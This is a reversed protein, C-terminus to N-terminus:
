ALGIARGSRRRRQTAEASQPPVPLHPLFSSSCRVLPRLPFILQFSSRAVLVTRTGLRREKWDEPVLSESSNFQELVALFTEPQTGDKNLRAEGAKKFKSKTKDDEISSSLLSIQSRASMETTQGVNSCGRDSLEFLRKHEEYRATDGSGAM